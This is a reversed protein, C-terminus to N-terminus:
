RPSALVVTLSSSSMNATAPMLRVIGLDQGLLAAEAQRGAPYYVTDQPVSGRWDSVAAVSWGAVRAQGAVRAALGGIGIQNYVGVGISRTATPEVTPETTPKPKPKPKKTAKATPESKEAKPKKTAPPEAGADKASVEASAAPADDSRVVNIIAVGGLAGLVLWVAPLVILSWTPRPRGVDRRDEPRESEPQQEM